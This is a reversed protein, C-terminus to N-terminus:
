KEINVASREKEDAVPILWQALREHECKHTSLGFPLAQKHGIPIFSSGSLGFRQVPLLYAPWSRAELEHIHQLEDILRLQTLKVARFAEFSFCFTKYVRSIFLIM